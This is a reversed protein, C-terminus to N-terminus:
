WSLIAHRVAPVLGLLAGAAVIILNLLRLSPTRDALVGGSYYGTALAGLTVTLLAAWIYLNVGFVPGIIRTGLVEIVMVAAGTGFVSAFLEVRNLNPGGIRLADAAQAQEAHRKRAM